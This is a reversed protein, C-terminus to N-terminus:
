GIVQPHPAAAIIAGSLATDGRVIFGHAHRAVKLLTGEDAKDMVEIRAVGDLIRFTLETVPGTAVILVDPTM